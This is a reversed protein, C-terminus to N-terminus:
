VGHPLYLHEWLTLICNDQIYNVLSRELICVRKCRWCIVGVIQFRIAMNCLIIGVHLQIVAPVHQSCMFVPGCTIILHM